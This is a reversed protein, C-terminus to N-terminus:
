YNPKSDPAAPPPDPDIDDDPQDFSSAKSVPANPGSFQRDIRERWGPESPKVISDVIM